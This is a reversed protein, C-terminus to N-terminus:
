PRYRGILRFLARVDRESIPAGEQNLIYLLSALGILPCDTPNRCYDDCYHKGQRFWPRISGAQYDKMLSM